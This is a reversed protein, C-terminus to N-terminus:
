KQHKSVKKVYFVQNKIKTKNQKIPPVWMEKKELLSSPGEVLFHLVSSPSPLIDLRASPLIVLTLPTKGTHKGKQLFTM